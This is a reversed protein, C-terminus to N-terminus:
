DKTKQQAPAKETKPPKEGQPAKEAKPAKEGKAGKEPKAGKEAKAGKETKAAAEPPAKQWAKEVKVKEPRVPVNALSGGAAEIAARAGKSAALGVRHRARKSGAAPKITNMRM